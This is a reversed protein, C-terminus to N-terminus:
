YDSAPAVAVNDILRVRGLFVAALLRAPAEISSEFPMLTEGHRVELYDLRFGAQELRVLGQRMTDEIARGASLDAAMDALVAHLQPAIAREGADLYVNRSSM